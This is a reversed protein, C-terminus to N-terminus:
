SVVHVQNKKEFRITASDYFQPHCENTYEDSWAFLLDGDDLQVTQPGRRHHSDDEGPWVRWIQNGASDTRILTTQINEVDSFCTMYWEQCTFLYGGDTVPLIHYPDLNCQGGCDFDQEWLISGDNKWLAIRAYNNGGFSQPAAAMIATSDSLGMTSFIINAAEIDWYDVKVTDTFDQNYTVILGHLYGSSDEATGVCLNQMGFSSVGRFDFGHISDLFYSFQGISSGEVTLQEYDIYNRGGSFSNIGLVGYGSSTEM